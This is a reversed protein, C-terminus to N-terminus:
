FQVMLPPFMFLVFTVMAPFGGITGEFLDWGDGSKLARHHGAAIGGFIWTALLTMMLIYWLAHLRYPNTGFSYWLAM